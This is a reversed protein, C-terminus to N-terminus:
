RSILDQRIRFHVLVGAAFDSESSLCHILLYVSIFLIFPALWHFDTLPENIQLTRPATILMLEQLKMFAAQHLAAPLIYNHYNCIKGRISHTLTLLWDDMKSPWSHIWKLCFPTSNGVKALRFIIFTSLITINCKQCTETNKNEEQIWITLYFYYILVGATHQRNRRRRQTDGRTDVTMLFSWQHIWCVLGNM